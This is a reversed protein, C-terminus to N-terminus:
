NFFLVLDASTNKKFSRKKITNNKFLFFFMSNFPLLLFPAKLFAVDNYRFKDKLIVSLVTISLDISGNTAHLKPVWNIGYAEIKVLLYCKSITVIVVTRSRFHASSTAVVRVFPSQLFLYSKSFYSFDNQCEPIKNQHRM